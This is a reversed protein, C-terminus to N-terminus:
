AVTNWSLRDPNAASGYKVFFRSVNSATGVNVALQGALGTLGSANPNTGSFYSMAPIANIARAMEYLYIAQEGTFASPPQRIRDRNM